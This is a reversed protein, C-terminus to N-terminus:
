RAVLYCATFTIAIVSFALAKEILSWTENLNSCHPCDIPSDTLYQRIRYGNRLYWPHGPYPYPAWAETTKTTHTRRMRPTPDIHLPLTAARDKQAALSGETLQAHEPSNIAHPM